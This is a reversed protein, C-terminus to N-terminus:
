CLVKKLFKVLVDFIDKDYVDNIFDKKIESLNKGDREAVMGQGTCIIPKIIDAVDYVFGYGRKQSHLLGIDPDLGMHSIVVEAVTYCLHNYFIVKHGKSNKRSFNDCGEKDSIYKYFRKVWAGEIGLCNNLNINDTNLSPCSIGFYLRALSYRKDLFEKAIKLKTDNDTFSKYQKLKLASSRHFVCKSHIPLSNAGSFFFMCGRQSSVRVAESTVSVGPGCIIAGITAVPISELLTEGDVNTYICVNEDRKIVRCMEIYYIPTRRSLPILKNKEDIRNKLEKGM